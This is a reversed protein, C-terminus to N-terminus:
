ENPKDEQEGGIAEAAESPKEDAAVKAIKVLVEDINKINEDEVENISEKQGLLNKGLFIAMAASKESLKFQNRRLSIKGPASYIKFAEAFTKHFTRKCYREITDVSCSFFGAIEEETCFMACLKMFQENDINKKPRGMKAM